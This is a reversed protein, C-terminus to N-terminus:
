SGQCYSNGVMYLRNFVALEFEKVALSQVFRADIHTGICQNMLDLFLPCFKVSSEEIQVGTVSSHLAIVVVLSISDYRAGSLEFAEQFLEM